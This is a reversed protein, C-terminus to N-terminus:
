HTFIRASNEAKPQLINIGNENEGQLLNDGMNRVSAVLDVFKGLFIKEQEESFEIQQLLYNVMMVMPKPHQSLFIFNNLNTNLAGKEQEQNTAKNEPKKIKEEEYHIWPLPNIKGSYYTNTKCFYKKYVYNYAPNPKGPYTIFDAGLNIFAFNMASEELLYQKVANQCKSYDINMKNEEYRSYKKGAFSVVIEDVIKKLREDKCPNTDTGYDSEVLKHGEKFDKQKVLPEWSICEYDIPLTNLAVKNKEKWENDLELAKVGADELSIGQELAIYHRKLYGTLVIILKAIKSKEKKILECFKVFDDGTQHIQDISIVTLLCINNKEPHIISGVFRAPRQFEGHMPTPSFFLTAKSNNYM